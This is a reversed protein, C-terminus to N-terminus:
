NFILRVVRLLNGKIFKRFIDVTIEQPQEFSCRVGLDIDVFSFNRHISASVDMPSVNTCKNIRIEWPFISPHWIHADRSIGNWLWLELQGFQYTKLYNYINQAMAFWFSPENMSMGSFHEQLHCQFMYCSFWKATTPASSRRRSSVHDFNWRSFHCRFMEQHFGIWLSVIVNWLTWESVKTSRIFHHSCSVIIFLRLQIM